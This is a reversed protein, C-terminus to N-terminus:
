LFHTPWKITMKLRMVVVVVVVFLGGSSSTMKQKNSSREPKSSCFTENFFDHSPSSFIDSTRWRSSLECLRNHPASLSFVQMQNLEGSASLAAFIKEEAVLASWLRWLYDVTLYLPDNAVPRAQSCVRSSSSACFDFQLMSCASHAVLADWQLGHGLPVDFLAFSSFLRIPPYFSLAPWSFRASNKIVFDM